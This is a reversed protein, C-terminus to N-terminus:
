QEDSEEAAKMLENRGSFLKNVLTSDSDSYLTGKNQTSQILFGNKDTAPFAKVEIPEMENGEIKLTYLALETSAKQDYFTDSTTNSLSNIYSTVTASDTQMGNITWKDDQKILVFSSDGPYNFSVRKWNYTNSNVINKNRFASLDRNFMMSILGDVAYIEDENALRVYSTIQINQQQYYNQQAPQKYTFKGIYLDLTTEDDEKVKIKTAASDTVEYETKKAKSKGVVRKAKMSTLQSIINEAEVDDANFVTGNKEVKWTNATRKLTFYEGKLSKPYIVVSTIATSDIEIFDRKFTRNEKQSDVIIVVTVVVILIILLTLQKRMKGKKMM